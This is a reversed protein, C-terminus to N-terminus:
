AHPHKQPTIEALEDDMIYELASKWYVPTSTLQVSIQLQLSQNGLPLHARLPAVM